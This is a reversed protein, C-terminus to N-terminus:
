KKSLCHYLSGALGGGLINGITVPILNTIFFGYWNLTDTGIDYAGIYKLFIGAPIYGMNAVSHEFGCLVFLMIPLFLAIIKDSVKDAMVSMMVAVCVLLNCLIGKFLGDTFSISCKAAATTVAYAAAQGGFASYMHGFVTLASIFLGGLLNGAYVICWNIILELPTIKKDLASIVLLCNGTFLESGNAVVMALGAPFILASILKAASASEITASGMTAAAGALSIFMGAFFASVLMKFVSMRAKEAGIDSYRYVANKM